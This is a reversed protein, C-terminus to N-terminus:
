RFGEVYYRFENRLYSPGSAGSDTWYCIARYYVRRMKAPKACATALGDFSLQGNTATGYISGTITFSDSGDLSVCALRITTAGTFNKLNSDADKVTVVLTSDVDGYAFGGFSVAKM